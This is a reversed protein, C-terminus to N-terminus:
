LPHTSPDAAAPEHFRPGRKGPKRRVARSPDDPRWRPAADRLADQYMHMQPKFHGTSFSLNRDHRLCASRILRLLRGQQGRKRLVPKRFARQLPNARVDHVFRVELWRISSRPRPSALWGTARISMMGTRLRRGSLCGVFFWERDRPNGRHRERKLQQSPSRIRM